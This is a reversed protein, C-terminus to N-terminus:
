ICFVQVSNLLFRLDDKDGSANSTANKNEKIDIQPNTDVPSTDASGTTTSMNDRDQKALEEQQEAGELTNDKVTDIDHNVSVKQSVAKDSSEADQYNFSVPKVTENVAEYMKGAFDKKRQINDENNKNNAM